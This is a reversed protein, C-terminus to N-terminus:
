KIISVKFGHGGSAGNRSQQFTHVYIVLFHFPLASAKSIWVLFKFLKIWCVSLKCPVIWVLTPWLQVSPVMSSMVEPSAKVMLKACIDWNFLLPCWDPVVKAQCPLSWWYFQLLIYPSSPFIKKSQLLKNTATDEPWPAGGNALGENM